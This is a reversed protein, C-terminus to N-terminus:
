EEHILDVGDSNSAKVVVFRFWNKFKEKGMAPSDVECASNPPLLAGEGHPVVAANLMVGDIIVESVAALHHADRKGTFCGGLERFFSM